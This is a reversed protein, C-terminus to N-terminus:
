ARGHICDHLQIGREGSSVLELALDAPASHRRHEEGAVDFMVATDRELEQIGLEAGHETGVPKEALDPHRGVELM